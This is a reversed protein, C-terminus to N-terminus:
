ELGGGETCCCRGNAEGGGLDAGWVIVGVIDGRGTSLVVVAVLGGGGAYWRGNVDGGGLDAGWVGVVVLGLTRLWKVGLTLLLEM